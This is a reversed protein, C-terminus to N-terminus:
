YTLAYDRNRLCQEIWDCIIDFFVAITEMLGLIIASSVYQSWLMLTHVTYKLVVGQGEM